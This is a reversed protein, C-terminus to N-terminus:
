WRRTGWGSGGYAAMGPGDGALRLERRFENRACERQEAEYARAEDLAGGDGSAGVEVCLGL